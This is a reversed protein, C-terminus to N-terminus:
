LQEFDVSESYYGNSDGVWRLVVLGKATQIRYFTWTRSDCSGEPIPTDYEDDGIKIKPSKNGDPLENSAEEARLVPSGILDDLEGAIDNITVSECCDQHHQMKYSTGDSCAFILYDNEWHGKEGADKVKEIATITKGLLTQFPVYNM